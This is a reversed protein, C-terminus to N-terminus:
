VGVSERILSSIRRMVIMMMAEAEACKTMTKNDIVYRYIM